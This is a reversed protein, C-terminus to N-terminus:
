FNTATWKLIQRASRVVSSPFSYPINARYIFIFGLTCYNIEDAYYYSFFILQSLLAVENKNTPTNRCHFYALNLRRCLTSNIIDAYWSFIGALFANYACAYSKEAPSSNSSAMSFANIGCGSFLCCVFTKWTNQHIWQSEIHFMIVVGVTCLLPASV